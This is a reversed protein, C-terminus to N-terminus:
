ILIDGSVADMYLDSMQADTFESGGGVADHVAREFAIAEAATLKFNNYQAVLMSTWTLNALQEIRDYGEDEWLIYEPDDRTKGWFESKDIDGRQILNYVFGSYIANLVFHATDDEDVADLIVDDLADDDLADDDLADDDSDDDLADPFTMYASALVNDVFFLGGKVMPSYYTDEDSPENETVATAFLLGTADDEVIILNGPIVNSAVLFNADTQPPLSPFVQGEETSSPAMYVMHDESIVIAGGEYEIKRYVEEEPFM